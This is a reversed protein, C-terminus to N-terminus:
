RRGKANWNAESPIPDQKLISCHCDVQLRLKYKIIYLRVQRGMEYSTSADLWCGFVLRHPLGRCLDLDALRGM